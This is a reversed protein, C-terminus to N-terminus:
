SGLANKSNEELGPEDVSVVAFGFENQTRYNPDELGLCSFDPHSNRWSASGEKYHARRYLFEVVWPCKKSSEELGSEDVSVIAFGFENQTRYNPDEVDNKPITKNLPWKKGWFFVIKQRFALHDKCDM